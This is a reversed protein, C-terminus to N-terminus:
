KKEESMLAIVLPKELLAYIESFNDGKTEIVLRNVRFGSADIRSKVEILHGKTTM